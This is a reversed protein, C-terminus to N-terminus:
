RLVGGRGPCRIEGGPEGQGVIERGSRKSPDHADESELFNEPVLCRPGPQRTVILSLKSPGLRERGFASAIRSALM